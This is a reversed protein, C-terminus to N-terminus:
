SDEFEKTLAERLKAIARNQIVKVNNVEKGLINATDSLPFGELFRLVIVNRQDDTLMANIAEELLALRRYDEAQEPPPNAAGKENWLLEFSSYHKRDRVADIVVHYATQYLYSRLNKRPGKGAALQELLRSFVDGVVNDAQQPERCLRLAYRYLLPAYEEFVASLAEPDLNKIDKLVINEDM